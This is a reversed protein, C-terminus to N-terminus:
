HHPTSLGAHNELFQIGSPETSGLGEMAGVRPQLSPFRQTLLICIPVSTNDATPPFPATPHPSLDM